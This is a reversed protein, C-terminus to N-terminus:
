SPRCHSGAPTAGPLWHCLDFPIYKCLSTPRAEKTGLDYGVRVPNDRSVFQDDFLRTGTLIESGLGTFVIKSPWQSIVDAASYPSLSFNFDFGIGLPYICGMVVLQAVKNSVLSRGDSDRLLRELNYLSGISVITVNNNKRLQEKYIEVADSIEVYQPATYYSANSNTAIYETYRNEYTGETIYKACYSFPSMYQDVYGVPISPRGYYKNIAHLCFPSYPDSVNCVTALIEVAGQDEYAHLMAVAGLDDCDTALDTDLIIKVPFTQTGIPTSTPTPTKTPTLTPTPTRTPTRTPTSTPTPTPTDPQSSGARLAVDDFWASGEQAALELNDFNAEEPAAAVEAAGKYVDNIWYTLRVMSGVVEYGIKVKYWAGTSYTGLVSDDAARIEGNGIFTVFRRMPNTWSTGKRLGVCARDPHCGSLSEGGNNISVEVYFPPSITLPRYTLAAWCGGISGYLRLSKAGNYAKISEVYNHASDNANADKTWTPPFEM